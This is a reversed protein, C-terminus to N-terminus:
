GIDIKYICYSLVFVITILLYMVIHIFGVSSATNLCLEWIRGFRKDPYTGTGVHGSLRPRVTIVLSKIEHNADCKRVVIDLKQKPFNHSLM